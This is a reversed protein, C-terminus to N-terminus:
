DDVTFVKVDGDAVHEAAWGIAVLPEVILADIAVGLGEVLIAVEDGRRVVLSAMVHGRGEVGREVGDTVVAHEGGVHLAPARDFGLDGRRQASEGSGGVIDHEDTAVGEGALDAVREAVEAGAGIPRRTADEDGMEVLLGLEM